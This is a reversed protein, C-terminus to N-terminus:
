IPQDSLSYTGIILSCYQARLAEPLLEQKLCYFAQEWTLLKLEETIKKIAM